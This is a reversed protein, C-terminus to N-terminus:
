DDSNERKKVTIVKEDDIVNVTWTLEDNPEVELVDGIAKPIGARLSNSTTNAKNIKSHQKLIIM